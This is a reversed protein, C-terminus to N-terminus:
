FFFTKFLESSQIKQLFAPNVIVDFVTCGSGSKDMEAHADGISMPIRFQTFDDSELVKLLEDETLDKALPVNESHCVNIFVKEGNSMKLKVCFGPKPVINTYPIGGSTKPEDGGMALQSPDLGSELLLKGLLAQADASESDLLSPDM